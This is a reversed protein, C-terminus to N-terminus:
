YLLGGAFSVPYEGCSAVDGDILGALKRSGTEALGSVDASFVHKLEWFLCGGGCLAVVEGLFGAGGGVGGGFKPRRGYRSFELGLGGFDSARPRWFELGVRRKVFKRAGMFQFYPRLH